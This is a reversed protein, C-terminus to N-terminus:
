GRLREAREHMGILGFHGDRSAAGNQADFGCGDDQVRLKIQKPEFALEVRLTKAQAHKMANTMAEQGIRLLNNEVPAPLPRRTGTINFVARTATGATMRKATDALATALD